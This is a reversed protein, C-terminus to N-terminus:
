GFKLGLLFGAVLGIGSSQDIEGIKEYIFTGFMKFLEVIRDLSSSFDYNKIEAIKSNDLWFLAIVGVILVFLMLKISKKLLYGVTFGFIFSAGFKTSAIDKFIKSDFIDFNM